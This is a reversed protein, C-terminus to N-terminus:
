APPSAICCSTMRACISCVAIFFSSIMNSLSARMSVARMLVSKAGKARTPQIPRMASMTFSMPVVQRWTM